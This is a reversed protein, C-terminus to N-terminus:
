SSIGTQLFSESKDIAEATGILHVLDNGSFVFDAKPIVTGLFERFVSVVSAGTDRRLNLDIIKKGVAYAEPSLRVPRIAALAEWTPMDISRRVTAAVDYVARGLDRRSKLLLDHISRSPVGYETLARALIEMSTEFESVVLEGQAPLALANMDRVYMTRVLVRVDPRLRHVASLVGQLMTTGSVLIVVLRASKIEAQELIEDRTADGFFIDVGESKQQKAVDYNLEIVKFPIKLTELAAGLNRGAVGYGIIITHLNKAGAVSASPVKSAPALSEAALSSVGPQMTTEAVIDKVEDLWKGRLVGGEAALRGKFFEGVNTLLPVKPALRYIFPTLGVLLISVSLVYQLGDENLVGKELGLNALIFSFEGIQCLILGTMAAVQHSYHSVRGALYLVAVKTLAILIAIILIWHIHSMVFSLKLLMGVSIFFLGLFNDRLLVVESTAQRSYPSGALMMGAVFAGFSLSLGLKEAGFAVGFCVFLVAFFFLERSRTRIVQTLLFPIAYRAGFLVVAGILILQCLWLLVTTVSPWTLMGQVEAFLPLALVMPIVAIDQFLTVGLIAQGHPTELERGDQLLKLVVATSSLSALCGVFIGQTWSVPILYHCLVGVLLVTLVVQSGGLFFFARRLQKVRHLTFELGISFMLLVIGIETLTQAGSMSDIVGFGYPGILIGALIFGVIAPIRVRHCLTAVLTASGFLIVLQLFTSSHSMKKTGNSAPLCNSSKPLLRWADIM